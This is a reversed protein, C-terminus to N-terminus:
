GGMWGGAERGKWQELLEEDECRDSRRSIKVHGGPRLDTTRYKIKTQFLALSVVHVKFMRIYHQAREQPDGVRALNEHAM